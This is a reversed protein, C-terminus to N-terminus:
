PGLRGTLALPSIVIKETGSFFPLLCYYKKKRSLFLLLRRQKKGLGREGFNDWLNSNM